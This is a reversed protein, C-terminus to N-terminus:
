NESWRFSVLGFHVCCYGLVRRCFKPRFFVCSISLTSVFQSLLCHSIYNKVSYSVFCFLPEFCSPWLWHGMMYFSLWNNSQLMATVLLLSVARIHSFSIRCISKLKQGFVWMTDLLLLVSGQSLFDLSKSLHQTGWFQTHSCWIYSVDTPLKSFNCCSYNVAIKNPDLSFVVLFDFREVPFKLWVYPISFTYYQTFAPDDIVYNFCSSTFKPVFICVTSNRLLLWM